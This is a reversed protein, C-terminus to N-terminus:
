SQRIQSGQDVLESRRAIKARGAQRFRWRLSRLKSEAKVAETIALELSASSLLVRDDFLRSYPLWVM